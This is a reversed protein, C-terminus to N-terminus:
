LILFFHVPIIFVSIELYHHVLPLHLQSTCMPKLHKTLTKNKLNTTTECTHRVNNNTGKSIDSINLLLNIKLTFRGDVEKRLWGSEERNALLKDRKSNTKKLSGSRANINIVKIM